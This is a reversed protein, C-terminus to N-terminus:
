KIKTIKLLVPTKNESSDASTANGINAGGGSSAWAQLEFVTASNVTVYGQCASVIDTVLASNIHQTKQGILATTGTTINRLRTHSNTPTAASNQVINVLSEIYYQGPQISIQNSSLSTVVGSPDSLTNMNVATWTSGAISQTAANSTLVNSVLAIRPQLLPVGVLSPSKSANIVLYGNNQNTVGLSADEFEFQRFTTTAVNCYGADIYLIGTSENYSNITAGYLVTSGYQVADLNGFGVKNASRYLQRNVGKHGKGIQIAVTAPQASTSAANYPRSYIQIGNVNMDATTQTPATTTQTRTNTSAAYTFTIFTGVPANSLTSLTYSSSPAYTLSATDTSFSESATIISDSAATASVTIYAGGNAGGDPLNCIFTEGVELGFEGAATAFYSSVAPTNNRAITISGNKLIQAATTAAAASRASFSANVTCRKLATFVGTSSNYSLIGKNTSSTLAGTITAGGAFSGTNLYYMYENDNQPINVFPTVNVGTVNPKGVKSITFLVINGNNQAQSNVTGTIVDNVNLYGSWSVTVAKENTNATNISDGSTALTESANKTIFLGNYTSSATTRETYSIHYIGATRAKFQGGLTPSDTYEIDTGINQVINSFRRALTSTSGFGNAGSAQVSSDSESFQPLTNTVSVAIDQEQFSLNFSNTDFSTPNADATLRIIDGVSVFGSYAISGNATGSFGQTNSAMIESATGSSTLNTQNKTIRFTTATPMVLSATVDLLGAKKMTVFTGDNATSTVTFADGRIKAINTFRVITTAVAGRSSAGEFRLESTPIKIKQDSSVSVQKLSNQKAITFHANTVTEGSNQVRVIDGSNLYGSWSASVIKTNATATNQGDRSLGLTKADTLSVVDTSLDAGSANLSFGLTAAQLSQTTVYFGSLSYNGSTNVTFSAGNVASDLYTIDSGLSSALTLFRLVRTGTSGAGNPGYVRVMSDPNQVLGSQTLDITKTTTASLGSCPVKAFLAVSTGSAVLTSGNVKTLGANASGQLGFTLYAVSPEVLTAGAIASVVSFSFSGIQQISPILATGASTLGAPLGVRAEVGTSTGSTFKGRIEVDQGVQRWEFEIATPTGFGQFAPTYGQWETVVPVEVSTELLSTVALEAIIDDVRTVPSGAEPLATITYSLSTCTAPITFGIKSLAGATDNSLQLQESAVINAANTEDYINLTVNGASANSKVNLRMTMAEGRFKADVPIVQKFSQNVANQHTMLASVEGHLPSSTSLTLGTQTFDTLAAEEFTQTFLIDVGGIGAGGGVAELLGDVVQFMEKTDTAFVLQGNSATTAYTTLNAKTDQKVDSRVPTRIDAGTIIKNTLTQSTGTGVVSNGVGIGHVDTSAAIHSAATDADGQLEQLAAQVDTSALNGNPVVSIASADHADTTDSLHNALNTANTGIASANTDIDGQLENLAAQVDTASLNGSPVNSIASADHADSADNIHGQVDGDLENIAAQVDTAAITGAPVNSIASADHADTADAIHDTIATNLSSTSYDLALKSEAIAAGAKIDANEINTITNQDADITKNTVVQSQDATLVERVAANLYVQLKQGTLTVKLEGSIGDLAVDDARLIIGRTFQQKKISM